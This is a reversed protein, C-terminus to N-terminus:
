RAFFKKIKNFIKLRVSKSSLNMMGHNLSATPHIEKTQNNLDPPSASVSGGPVFHLGIGLVQRFVV